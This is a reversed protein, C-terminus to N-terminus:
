EIVSRCDLFGNTITKARSKLLANSVTRWAVSNRLTAISFMELATYPRCSSLPTRRLVYHRINYDVLYPPDVEANSSIEALM